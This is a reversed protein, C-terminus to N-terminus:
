GRLRHPLSTALNDVSSALSHARKVDVDALNCYHRTMELSSHGLMRQLSFVDGGNRLFSVAATHRLTHPSVRLGMLGAKQGYRRMIKEARDKNLPRGDATLLVQSIRPMAPHPRYRAIYRLLHKAVQRGIPVVRERNGKGTVKILGDQLFLNELRLSTLESIRLGTDLLMLILVLDRYGATTGADIAGLLQALQAESFTAMVKNPPRPIKVKDM